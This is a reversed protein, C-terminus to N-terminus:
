LLMLFKFIEGFSKLVGTMELELPHNRYYFESNNKKEPKDSWQQM